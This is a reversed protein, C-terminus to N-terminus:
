VPSWSGQRFVQWFSCAKQVGSHPSLSSINAKYSRNGQGKYPLPLWPSSPPLNEQLRHSSGTPLPPPIQCRIDREIADQIRGRGYISATIPKGSTPLFMLPTSGVFVAYNHRLECKQLGFVRCGWVIISVSFAKMNCSSWNQPSASLSELFLRVFATSPNRFAKRKGQFDNLIGDRIPFRHVCVGAIGLVANLTEVLVSKVDGAGGVPRPNFIHKAGRAYIGYFFVGRVATRWNTRPSFPRYQFVPFPWTARIRKQSVVWSAFIPLFIPSM